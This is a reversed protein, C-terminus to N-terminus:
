ALYQKPNPRNEPLLIGCDVTKPLEMYAATYYTEISNRTIFEGNSVELTLGVVDLHTNVRHWPPFVYAIIKSFCSNSGM